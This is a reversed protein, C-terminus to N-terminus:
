RAAPHARRNGRRRRRSRHGRERAARRGVIDVKRGRQAVPLLYMNRATVLDIPTIRVPEHRTPHAPRRGHVGSRVSNADATARRTAATPYTSARCATRPGSTDYLRVPEEGGSLEVERMPIQLGFTEVYIKRHSRYPTLSDTSLVSKQPKAPM